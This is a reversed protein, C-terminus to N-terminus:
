IHLTHLPLPLCDAQRSTLRNSNLQRAQLQRRRYDVADFNEVEYNHLWVIEDVAEAFREWETSDEVLTTGDALPLDAFCRAFERTARYIGEAVEDYAHRTEREVLSHLQALQEETFSLNRPDSVEPFTHKTDSTTIM